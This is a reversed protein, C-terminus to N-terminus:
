SSEHLFAEDFLTAENFRLRPGRVALRGAAYYMAGGHVNLECTSEVPCSGCTRRYRRQQAPDDPDVTEPVLLTARGDRNHRGNPELVRNGPAAGCLAESLLWVANCLQLPNTNRRQAYEFYVGRLTELLAESHVNAPYDIGPFEVMGNSVSVRMVHLDVPIPFNFLDVLKEDMLYYAIMSTMKERFGIFGNGKTDNKVRRVLEEYPSDFATLDSFINRPDGDYNELMRWSNEKWQSAVKKQFGLQHAKLENEIEEEPVTIAQYCDFLDPRDEYLRAMAQVAFTSKTGGRMYYCVNWFFMAHDRTGRELSAPMHREDQPVRVSDLYYPYRENEYAAMLTDLVEDVRDTNVIIQETDPRQSLREPMFDM